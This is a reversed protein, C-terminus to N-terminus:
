DYITTLLERHFAFLWCTLWSPMVLSSSCPQCSWMLFRMGATPLQYFIRSHCCGPVGCPRRRSFLQTQPQSCMSFFLTFSQTRPVCSVCAWPCLHEFKRQVSVHDTTTLSVTPHLRRLHMSAQDRVHLFWLLGCLHRFLGELLQLSSRLKDKDTGAFPLM